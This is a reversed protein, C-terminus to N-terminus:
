QYEEGIHYRKGNPMQVIRPRRNIEWVVPERLMITVTDGPTVYETVEHIILGNINILVKTQKTRM